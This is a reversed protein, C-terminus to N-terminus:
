NTQEDCYKKRTNSFQEALIIGVSNNRDVSHIEKLIVVQVKM